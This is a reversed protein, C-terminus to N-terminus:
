KRAGGEARTRRKKNIVLSGGLALASGAMLTMGLTIM